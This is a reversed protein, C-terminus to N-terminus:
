SAMVKETLAAAGHQAIYSNADYGQPLDVVFSHPGLADVCQVAAKHGVEDGDAIVAIRQVGDFCLKFHKAKRFTTAGPYGVAPIGCYAQVCAADLEGETLVVMDVTNILVRANWLHVGCGAEGLYKPLSDDMARYKINVVGNPTHYPISLRGNHEGEDCYGFSFMRAVELSIGRELLYSEAKEILLAYKNAKATLSARRQAPVIM